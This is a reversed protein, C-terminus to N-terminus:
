LFRFAGEICCLKVQIRPDIIRTTNARNKRAIERTVIPQARLSWAVYTSRGGSGNDASGSIWVEDRLAGLRVDSAQAEGLNLLKATVLLLNGWRRPKGGGDLNRGLSGLFGRTGERPKKKVRVSAAEEVQTM